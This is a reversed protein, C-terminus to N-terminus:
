FGMSAAFYARPGAGPAGRVPVGVGFRLPVFMGWFSSLVTAEGGAAILPADSASTSTCATTFRTAADADCWAHGADIFAAASIRDLFIPLPRIAVSPMAVPLRYELATTWARNGIRQNEPFGRVPLLRSIGGIDGVFGPVGIGITAGSVGGVGSLGAGPGDRLLGAVRAALVHRAFGPFPLALWAANRTTLERYGADFITTGDDDSFSTVSRDWRQRATAQVIFGNERSIAFPPMVFRSVYAGVRAGVLDDVPDILRNGEFGAGHLYQAARVLEGTFSLGAVARWRQATFSVGAEARDEREDIFRDTARDAFRTDWDREAAVTIAPHLNLPLTPLGRYTYSAGAQSRGTTPNLSASLEWEHREVLDAGLTWFGFFDGRHGGSELLPTWMFPRVSSAARYPRAPGATTDAAAVAARIAAALSADEPTKEAPAPRREALEAFHEPMPDRWTATDFPMRELRFGDAQYASYVVHLGDPSVDPYYAGTIVNTIQRMRPLAGDTPPAGDTFGGVDAAYLNPIGTRDSWFLLWRGDPSWAPAASIGPSRTVDFLTRGNADLVVLQYDGGTRWRGAAIRRGDPSFRPLSWHVGEDFGTIATPQLTAGDLLVLRNTGARNEVAV